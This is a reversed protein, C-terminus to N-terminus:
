AWLKLMGSSPLYVSRAVTPAGVKERCPSCPSVGLSASPVTTSNVSTSSEVCPQGPTPASSLTPHHKRDPRRVVTDGTCSSVPLPSSAMSSRTSRSTSAAFRATSQRLLSSFRARAAAAEPWTRSSRLTSSAAVAM